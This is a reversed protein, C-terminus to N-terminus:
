RSAPNAPKKVRVLVMVTIFVMFGLIYAALVAPSNANEMAMVNLAGAIASLIYLMSVGVLGLKGRSNVQEPVKKLLFIGVLLLNILLIIQTVTSLAPLKYTFEGDVVAIGYHFYGYTDSLWGIICLLIVPTMFLTKSIRGRLALYHVLSASVAYVGFLFLDGITNSVELVTSDHTFILPISWFAFALAAFLGTLAFYGSLPTHLRRYNKFARYSFLLFVPIGILYPVVNSPIDQM